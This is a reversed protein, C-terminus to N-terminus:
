KKPEYKQAKELGKLDKYWQLARAMYREFDMFRNDSNRKWEAKGRMSLDQKVLERWDDMREERRARVLKKIVNLYQYRAMLREIYHTSPMQIRCGGFKKLFKLFLEEGLFEYLELLEDNRYRYCLYLLIQHPTYETENM